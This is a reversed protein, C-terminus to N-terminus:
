FKVPDGIKVHHNSVWSANVELVSDVPGPPDYTKYQDDYFHNEVPAGPTIGIIKGDKIWVFDLAFTLGKMWFRPQTIGTNHFDFLMGQSDTLRDRGSLGRERSLDNDVVEVFITQQGVHLATTYPPSPQAEPSTTKVCGVALTGIAITLLIFRSLPPLTNM